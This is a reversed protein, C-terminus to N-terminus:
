VNTTQTKGMEKQLQIEPKMYNYDSFISPITEMGKFKLSIKPGLIHDAKPFIEHARSFFIYEIAKPYFM